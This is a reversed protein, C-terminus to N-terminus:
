QPWLNKYQLIKKLPINFNLDIAIGLFTAEGTTQIRQLNGTVPNYGFPLPRNPKGDFQLQLRLIEDESNLKLRAWNYSYDQLAESAIDLQSFQPSDPPLNKMLDQTASLKITGGQGPTSYLFGNEFSLQGEHWRLPIRGNVQGEGSGQAVGLQGLLMALNLRDCYLTAEIEKHEPNFRLAHTQVAGHCWRLGAREIFLTPGTEIQFDVDLDNVALNGMTMADVKLKQQPASRLSMLDVLRLDCVIGEVALRSRDQRLTGQQIQVRAGSTIGCGKYEVEAQAQLGGSVVYGAAAPVIRGLDMAGSIKHPPIQARAQIGDAGAQADLQVTLGQFLKSHHRAKAWVTQGALGIRGQLGGIDNNDWLINAARVEGAPPAPVQPWELPLHLYLGRAEIGHAKSTLHGNQSILAASLAWAADGNRHLRADIRNQPLVVLVQDHTIKAEPFEVRAQVQGGEASSWEAHLTVRPCQILGQPFQTQVTADATWGQPAQAVQGELQPIQVPLPGDIWLPGASWLWPKDQTKTITVILAQDNQDAHLGNKVMAQPVGIQTRSLRIQSSLSGIAVPLMAGQLEAELDVQGAASVPGALALLDAWTELRLGPGTAYLAWTNARTDLHCSFDIPNRRLVWQAKLDMQGSAPRQTTFELNMPFYFTRSRWHLIVAAHRLALHELGIAMVTELDALTVPAKSAASAPVGGTFGEIATGQDNLSIELRLGSLVVSRIQKRALSLPSYDIQVADIVLFPRGGLTLRIPGGDLARWGVRRINLTQLDFGAQAALRPLLRTEVYVPVYHVLVAAAVLATFCLAAAILMWKQRRSLSM